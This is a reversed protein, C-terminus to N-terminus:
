PIVVPILGRVGMDVVTDGALPEYFNNNGSERWEFSQNISVRLDIVIDQTPQSPIVLTQNFAGTVVCSGQPIPSSAFLPNPVTTAGEPALGSQVIPAVGPYTIEFAWFGQRRNGNVALSQTKINTSTIYQQYGIFSAVTATGDWNANLQPIFVRLQIDYNQYALSVRIWTYEGPAINKLPIRMFDVGSSTFPLQAFDIAEAGGASTSPSQYIVEGTGLPTFASPSLEIYHLAIQNFKPHQARHNAPLTAPQGINNLRVQTSDLTFRFVLSPESTEDKACSSFGFIGCFGLITLVNRMM